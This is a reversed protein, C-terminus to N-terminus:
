AVQRKVFSAFLGNKAVLEDFTGSEAIRGEDLVIIRDAHRITSLRHAVIVRTAKLRDLSETVIAQTRNDLASTAEDCVVIAPKMALAKAILIRQRQGGSINTSGESVVTQMQMPMERIEDAIGAAEAAAWADDLTLDSAGVINRYIDGTMLQGNQLVVGMQVRVSPLDLDALDQGDYYIAGSTPSEFGLLLRILTSKGCGSRGVIAVHEGAAVSFSLDHLVEPLGEGYSFSLHKVTFAGSLVDAEMKEEAVEPEADLIPKLNEILPRVVSLQELVPMIANLSANFATYAAQFAIFTAVSMPEGVAFVDELTKEAGSAVGAKTTEALERLGFYYLVLALLIPQVAVIVANYNKLVRASYNWKWEEAFKEGWLHYAQEEAGKVRFKMLGTFIQQLIGSTKNKAETMNRQANILRSIVFGSLVLYIAWIFLAAATLKWSYYCMLALSWLSFVLNLLVGFFNESFLTTAAALGMVRNALDGSQFSRFFKAPLSLLRGLLAARLAMGCSTSLRLFAVSRVTSLAATTFGAVMMVQTVTALGERDLIPIVDKFVTETVIPTILPILGIVLSVAVITKWDTAWSQRFLFKFLDSFTLKRAPLGPYCLFADKEFRVAVEDTVPIGDPCKKSVALYREPTEPILAVLEKREGDSSFYGLMVGSDETHWGDELSIYRLQMGCKQVLRRLIGFSDLKKVMEPAIHLDETPMKLTRAVCRVLFAAEELKADGTGGEDVLSIDEGLLEAITADVLRRQGKARNELRMGLRKDQSKFRVGLLMAFIAENESFAHLLPEMEAMNGDLVSGDAWTKLVDDGRDALLRLWPLAVIQGFWAKMLSALAVPEAEAMPLLEFEADQVAYILVDIEGFEDMSPFAAERETLESLFIQRFSIKQRTVAYVEARGSMLVIYSKEDTLLYREGAALKM